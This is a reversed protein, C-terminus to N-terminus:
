EPRTLPLDGGEALQKIRRLMMRRILGSPIRILLWYPTFRRRTAADPCFIDTRTTLLTGAERPEAVFTMVLKAVGPATFSRFDNAEVRILGGAPEWFRGVLGLAFERDGDRGLATFDHLGFGADIRRTAQRGMLAAVQAPVARLRLFLKALPFDHVDLQPVVDLVRGPAAAIRIQHQESFQHEPLFTRLLSM